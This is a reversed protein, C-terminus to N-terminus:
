FHGDKYVKDNYRNRPFSILHSARGMLNKILSIRTFIYLFTSFLDLNCYFKLVTIQLYKELFIIIFINGYNVYFM